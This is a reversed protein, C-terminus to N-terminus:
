QYMAEIEAAFKALIVRRKLKLTPTLEGESGDSKAPEWVGSLLTFKKIQEPHSFNPNIREILKWYRELVKPHRIMEELTTWPIGHKECWAKLGDASPVILASVFKLNEGVVMAQEVLRHEKLMSEIP